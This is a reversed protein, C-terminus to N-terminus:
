KSDATPVTPPVHFYREGDYTELRVNAILNHEGFADQVRKMGDLIMERTREAKASHFFFTSTLSVFSHTIGVCSGVIPDNM